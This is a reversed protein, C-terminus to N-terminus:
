AMDDVRLDSRPRVRRPGLLALRELALARGAAAGAAPARGERLWRAVAPLDGIDGVGASQRTWLSFLPITVGAVRRSKHTSSM